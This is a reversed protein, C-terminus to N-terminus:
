LIQNIIKLYRQTNQKGTFVFSLNDFSNPKPMKLGNFREFYDTETILEYGLSAIYMKYYTYHTCGLIIPYDKKLGKLIDRIYRYNIYFNPANYETLYALLSSPVIQMKSNLQKSSINNEMAIQEINKQIQKTTNDTALLVFKDYTIAKSINPTVLYVRFPYNNKVYEGFLTSATNCAIIVVDVGNLKFYDMATTIAGKLLCYTKNGYPMNLNDAYYIYSNNPYYVLMNALINLGGIGSDFIGIKM